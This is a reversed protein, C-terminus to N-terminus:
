KGQIEKISKLLISITGDTNNFFEIKDDGTLLSIPVKIEIGDDTVFKQTKPIKKYMPENVEITKEKLGRREIEEEYINQLELNENFAKTKIHDIDITDTEEVSEVIANKIEAIKKVDDEYYDQVIKKSVKNVIDIKEKDSLTDKSQLLYKSIYYEKQGNIEYKKEKLLISFDELDIIICEDIKQNINPLTTKQKIVKNIRKDESEEVYHIYSSKYNLIFFGLYKKGDGNFLSCILDCPPISANEAMIDYMLQAFEKTKEIFTDNNEAIEMCINKVPNEQTDFFAKKINIDNFVKEIHIELFEIIDGSYPHEAESLAPIGVSSDLIHLIMKEINIRDIIIM